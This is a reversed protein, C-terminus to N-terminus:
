NLWVYEALLIRHSHTCEFSDAEKGSIVLFLISCSYNFHSIKIFGFMAELMNEYSSFRQGPWCLAEMLSIIISGKMMDIM